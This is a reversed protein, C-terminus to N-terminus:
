ASGFPALETIHLSRPDLCAAHTAATARPRDNAGSRAVELPEFTEHLLSLM